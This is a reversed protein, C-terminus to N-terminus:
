RGRHGYEPVVVKSEALLTRCRGTMRADGAVVLAQAEDADLWERGGATYEVEVELPVLRGSGSDM